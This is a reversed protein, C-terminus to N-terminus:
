PMEPLWVRKGNTDTMLRGFASPAFHIGSARTHPQAIEQLLSQRTQAAKNPDEDFLDIWDPHDIGIVNHFSDGLLLLREDHSTIILAAHGPTHGPTAHVQVGPVLEQRDEIFEIRPALLPLAIEVGLRSATPNDFKQWEARRVFYRANPFTLTQTGDVSHGTWGIHDVHLHTYFVSDIDAPSLGVQQLSDLLEGGSLHFQPEESNLVQPGVGTDVLITQTGTQILHAGVNSIIRGDSGLLHTYAEWEHAPVQPYLVSPPVFFKGDPLYTIKITGIAITQQPAFM